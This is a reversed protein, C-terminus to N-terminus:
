PDRYPCQLSTSGTPRSCASREVVSVHHDGSAIVLVWEQGSGDGGQVGSVTRGLVYGPAAPLTGEGWEQGEGRCELQELRRQSCQM